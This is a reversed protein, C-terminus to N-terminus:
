NPPTTPAERVVRARAYTLSMSAVACSAVQLDSLTWVRDHGRLTAAPYKTGVACVPHDPGDAAWALKVTLTGAGWIPDSVGWSWATLEMPPSAPHAKLLLTYDPAARALASPVSSALLALPILGPRCRM